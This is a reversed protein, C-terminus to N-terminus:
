ASVLLVAATACVSGFSGCFCMIRCCPLAPSVEDGTTQVLSTMISDHRDLYSYLHGISRGGLLLLSRTLWKLVELPGGLGEQLNSEAMWAALREHLPTFVQPQSGRDHSKPAQIQRVQAADAPM